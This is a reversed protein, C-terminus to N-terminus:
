LRDVCTKLNTTYVALLSHAWNQPLVINIETLFRGRPPATQVRTLLLHSKEHEVHKAWRGVVPVALENQSKPSNTPTYQHRTTQKKGGPLIENKIQLETIVFSTPLKKM